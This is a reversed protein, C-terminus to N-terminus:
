SVAQWFTGDYIFCIVTTAGAVGTFSLGNLRFVANLTVVRGGTGDQTFALYIKMGPVLFIGTTNTGSLAPANVTIAGTLTMSHVEAGFPDPTYTAGFAPAFFSAGQARFQLDSKSIGSGATLPPMNSADNLTGTFALRISNQGSGSTIALAAAQHNVNAARDFSSGRITCESSAWDFGAFSGNPVGGNTGCNNNSDAVVGELTLKQTGNLNAFGARGNDQAYCAAMAGGSGSNAISTGSINAWTVGNGWGNALSFNLGGTIGGGDWSNAPAAVTLLTASASRDSVLKAGSFWFKCGHFQNSAGQIIAGDIGCAGINLNAYYSDQKCNLGFGDCLFIQIDTFQSGGKGIQVLGDGTFNQIIVNRVQHRGDSYFPGASPNNLVIASQWSGAGQNAKNGDLILDSIYWANANGSNAIMNTLAPSSAPLKLTTNVGSGALRVFSASSALTGWFTGPQLQIPSGLNALATMAASDAVGTTDGSPALGVGVAVNISRCTINGYQGTGFVDVVALNGDIVDNVPYGVASYVGPQQTM